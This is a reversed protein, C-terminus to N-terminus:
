KSPPATPTARCPYTIVAYGWASTRFPRSSPTNIAWRVSDYLDNRALLSLKGVETCGTLIQVLEDHLPLVLDQDDTTRIALV